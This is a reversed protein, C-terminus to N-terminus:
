DVDMNKRPHNTDHIKSLYQFDIHTYRQTTSINVHGLLDQVARLDSSSELIHSAFSHRLMHPHVHNNIGQKVALDKVRYQITRANIRTGRQSVFLAQEESDAYESRVGLWEKVANIAHEGIPLLRERGGKGSITFENNTFNITDVNLAVLESLRLGCSYFLELMARDRKDFWSDGKIEVLRIAQDVDMTKPLPKAGKPARIGTVPNVRLWDRHEIAFNFYSRLASLWRQLSQTNVGKRHRKALCSRIHTEDIAEITTIGREQLFDFFVKLDLWYADLSHKSYQKEVKLFTIFEERADEILKPM